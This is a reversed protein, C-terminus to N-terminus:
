LLEELKSMACDIHYGIIKYYNEPVKGEERLGGLKTGADDLEDFIERLANIRKEREELLIDLEHVKQKAM